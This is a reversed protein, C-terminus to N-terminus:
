STKEIKVWRPVIIEDQELCIAWALKCLDVEGLTYPWLERGDQKPLFCAHVCDPFVKQVDRAIKEQDKTMNLTGLKRNFYAEYMSVVDGQRYLRTSLADRPVIKEKGKVPLLKTRPRGRAKKRGNGGNSTEQLEGPSGQDPSFDDGGEDVHGFTDLRGHM